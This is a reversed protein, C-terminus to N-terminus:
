PAATNPGSASFSSAMCRALNQGFIVTNMALSSQDMRNIDEFSLDVINHQPSFQPQARIDPGV